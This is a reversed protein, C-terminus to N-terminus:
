DFYRKLREFFSHRKSGVQKDELEALQRLVEEQEDSLKRPVEVVVRVLQDGAGHRQLRPFGRSKLRLLSHSQTGAPM